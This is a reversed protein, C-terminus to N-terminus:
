SPFKHDTGLLGVLKYSNDEKIAEIVGDSIEKNTLWRSTEAELVFGLQVQRYLCNEDLRYTDKVVSANTRSGLVHFLKWPNQSASEQIVIDLAEKATSHIWAVVLAPEGNEAITLKLKERLTDEHHYDVLIPTISDTKKVKRILQNMRVLNRGVVSVQFCEDVLWCSVASLMGTGGIVIAHKM